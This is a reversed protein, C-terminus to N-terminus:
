GTPVTIGGAGPVVMVETATVFAPGEVLGSVEVVAPLGVLGSAVVLGSLGVVGSAGEFM